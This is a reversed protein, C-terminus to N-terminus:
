ISVRADPWSGSDHHPLFPLFFFSFLRTASHLKQQRAASDTFRNTVMRNTGGIIGDRQDEAM